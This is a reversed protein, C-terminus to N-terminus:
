PAMDRSVAQMSSGVESWRRCSIQAPGKRRVTSLNHKLVYRHIKQFIFLSLGVLSEGLSKSVGRVICRQEFGVRRYGKPERWHIDPIAPGFQFVNSAFRIKVNDVGICRVHFILEEEGVISNRYLNVADKTPPVM